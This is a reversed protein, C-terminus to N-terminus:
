YLISIHKFIKKTFTPVFENKSQLSYWSFNVPIKNSFKYYLSINLKKNSIFNNYNHLLKWKKDIKKFSTEEIHPLNFKNLFGLNNYKTLAIQKKKNLYCFINIKKKIVKKKNKNNLKKKLQNSICLKKIICNSCDPNKPKCILAGFEMIAEVLDANRKTNFLSIKNKEILEKYDIKKENKNLIRSFIRKVNGDVAITPQDHVLGLLANGTYEGIGPLKKIEDLKKPLRSNNEKVLIKVSSLLNRARRYYGLGEWLKLIRNESCKSLSNLTPFEKTFKKFYPIVTKVQTQQLMFESLLRYYLKKTSNKGVRWPLTRRNNDYWALIKKPLNYNIHM